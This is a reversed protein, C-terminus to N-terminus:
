FYRYTNKMHADYILDYWVSWSGELAAIKLQVWIQLYILIQQILTGLDIWLTNDTKDM